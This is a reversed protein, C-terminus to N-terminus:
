HYALDRECQEAMRQVFLNPLKCHFAPMYWKSRHLPHPIRSLWGCPLLLFGYSAPLHRLQVCQTQTKGHAYSHHDGYERYGSLLLGSDIVPVNKKARSAIALKPCQVGLHAVLAVVDASRYRTQMGTSYDLIVWSQEGSM